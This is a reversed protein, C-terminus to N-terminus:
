AIVLLMKVMIKDSGRQQCVFVVVVIVIIIVTIIKIWVNYGNDDADNIDGSFVIQTKENNRKVYKCSLKIREVFNGNFWVLSIM